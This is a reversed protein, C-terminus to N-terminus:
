TGIAINQPLELTPAPTPLVCIEEHRPEYFRALTGSPGHYRLLECRYTRAPDHLHRSHQDALEQQSQLVPSIHAKAVAGTFALVVVVVFSMSPTFM